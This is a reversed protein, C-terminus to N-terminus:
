NIKHKGLIVFSPYPYINCSKFLRNWFSVAILAADRSSKVSKNQACINCSPQVKGISLGWGTLLRQGTKHEIAIARHYDEATMLGLKWAEELVRSLAAMMKNATSSAYRDSLQVYIAQTHQYRLEAWPFSLANLKGDSVMLAIAKLAGQITRRSGAILQSLYVLVTNLWSVVLFRCCSSFFSTKANDTVAKKLQLYYIILVLCLLPKWLM